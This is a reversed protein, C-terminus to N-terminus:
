GDLVANCEMCRAAEVRNFKCGCDKCRPRYEHKKGPGDKM